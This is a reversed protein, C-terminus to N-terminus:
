LDKQWWNRKEKSLYLYKKSLFLYTQLNSKITSCIKIKKFGRKKISKWRDKSRIKLNPCCNRNIIQIKTNQLRAGNNDLLRNNNNMNKSNQLHIETLIQPTTRKMRYNKQFKLFLHFLIRIIISLSNLKAIVLIM